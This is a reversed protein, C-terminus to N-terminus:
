LLISTSSATKVFIGEETVEIECYAPCITAKGDEDDKSASVKYTGTQFFMLSVIGNEPDSVPDFTYKEKNVDTTITITIGGLPEAGEQEEPSEYESIYKQLILSATAFTSDGSSHSNNAEDNAFYAYNLSGDTFLVISDGPEIIQSDLGNEAFKNNLVFSWWHNQPAYVGGFGTYYGESGSPIELDESELAAKVVEIATNTTLTSLDVVTEELVATTSDADGEKTVGLGGAEIRVTVYGEPEEAYVPEAAMGAFGLTGVLLALTLLFALARQPGKLSLFNGSM